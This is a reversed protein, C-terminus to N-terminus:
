LPRRAAVVYTHQEGDPLTLSVYEGPVFREEGFRFGIADEGDGPELDVIWRNGAEHRLRGRAATEDDSFRRPAGPRRTWDDRRTSLLWWIM